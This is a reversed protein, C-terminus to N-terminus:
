VVPDSFDYKSRMFNGYNVYLDPSRLLAGLLCMEGQVNSVINEEM